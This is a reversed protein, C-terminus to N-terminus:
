LQYPNANPVHQQRWQLHAESGLPASAALEDITAAAPAPVTETAPDGAPEDAPEPLDALVDAAAQARAAAQRERALLDCIQQDAADLKADWRAWSARQRRGQEIVDRKLSSHLWSGPQPDTPM